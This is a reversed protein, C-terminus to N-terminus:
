ESGEWLEDILEEPVREDLCQGLRENDESLESITGRLRQTQQQNDEIEEIYDSMIDDYNSITRQFEEREEELSSEVSQLESEKQNLEEELSGKEEILNVGYWIAGASLAVGLVASIIKPNKLLSLLFNM